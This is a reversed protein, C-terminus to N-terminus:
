SVALHQSASGLCADAFSITTGTHMLVWTLIVSTVYVHFTTLTNTLNLLNSNIIWHWVVYSCIAVHLLFKANEMIDSSNNASNCVPFSSVSFIIGQKM